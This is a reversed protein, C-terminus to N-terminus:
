TINTTRCACILHCAVHVCGNHTSSKCATAHGNQIRHMTETLLLHDSLTYYSYPLLCFVEQEEYHILTPYTDSFSSQVTKYTSFLFLYNIYRYICLVCLMSYQVYYIVVSFLLIRWVEADSSTPTPNRNPNPENGGGTRIAYRRRRLLQRWWRRQPIFLWPRYYCLTRRFVAPCWLIVAPCMQIVVPRCSVVPCRQIVVPGHSVATCWLIVVPCRLVTVPPHIGCSVM